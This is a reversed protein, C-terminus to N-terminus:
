VQCNDCYYTGRGVLKMKKITNGCNFCKKGEQNYARLFGQFRGKKNDLDVYDSFTTGRMKISAILVEKMMIFITEAEEKTLSNAIRSPSLFSRNLIEDVYINGLGAVVKQDLLVQKVIINKSTLHRYFENFQISLADSAIKKDRLYRGIEDTAILEFGGFKRIDRYVLRLIELNQFFFELHCHKDLAVDKLLQGTMRLHIVITKNNSLILFIYKGHRKVDTIVEGKIKFDQYNKIINPWYVKLDIIKKDLFNHKLGSVVTDVEPLEPM